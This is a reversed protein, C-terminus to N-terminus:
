KVLVSALRERPAERNTADYRDAVSSALIDNMDGWAGDRDSTLIPSDPLAHIFRM